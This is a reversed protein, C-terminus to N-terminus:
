DALAAARAHSRPHAPSVRGAEVVERQWLELMLLAWLKRGHHARGAAHHEVLRAVASQDLLDRVRSDSALLLDRALPELPGRFWRDLPVVFGTKGRRLVSEPLEDRFADRLLSKLVGGEFRLEAPAAAAVALVEPDLLPCRAELGHAMCALDVKVLLDDPLYVMLDAFSMRDLATPGAEPRAMWGAFIQEPPESAFPATGGCLLAQERASFLRMMWGYRVALSRDALHRVRDLGAVTAIRGAGLRAALDLTGNWASLKGYRTYGAFAEDGGDGTLAVTVHRRAERAILYSPLASCDAFPEEFLRALVPLLSATDARVELEHHSTRHREAVARAYPLESASDFEFGAAFTEVPREQAQSMCAVVISSDIGGSLFAGIPVDSVLRKAVARRVTDRVEARWERAGQTRKRSFDPMWYREIRTAGGDWILRHAPPLKHIGAFGTGPGPVFGLSLYRGIDTSDIRPAVLGAGLIAKLESAFVLGGPISAYKLPKKGLRDRALLLRRHKRDWVAFAFMGDLQDVCDAGSEEYLHVIVEGDTGSRFRHGRAELQRRLEVFNYIEGNFVVLVSGDENTLPQRGRESLDIVSLRAHALGAGEGCWLGRDDPGRHALATAMRELTDREVPRRPDEHVIGAIGCM